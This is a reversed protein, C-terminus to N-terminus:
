GAPAIVAANSMPQERGDISASVNYRNTGEPAHEDRYAAEPIDAALLKGNRYINYTVVTLGKAPIGDTM